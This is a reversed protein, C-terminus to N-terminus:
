LAAYSVALAATALVFFRGGKVNPQGEGRDVRSRDGDRRRSNWVLDVTSALRTGFPARRVRVRHGERISHPGTYDSGRRTIHLFLATGNRSARATRMTTGRSRTAM